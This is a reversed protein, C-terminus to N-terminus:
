AVRARIPPESDAVTMEPKTAAAESRVYALGVVRKLAPSYVASTIEAVAVGNAFLRTGAPPPTDGEIAIPTLLRHVQGRSRVREVIEQGLYCGKNFHVANSVQTEPVLYRDSIDEGFRPRGNELRVIRSEDENAEPIEAERLKSSFAPFEIPPVWIRFGASGTSSVCAVFGKEFSAIGFASDPVPLGLGRLAAESQPGELDIVSWRSAEDEVTADDAIIYKDLHTQLLPTSEPETDLFYENGLRFINADAIIRGKDNLFFAYLGSRDVLGQVHNTSM